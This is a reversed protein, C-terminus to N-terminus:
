GASLVRRCSPIRSKIKFKSSVNIAKFGTKMEDSEFKFGSYQEQANINWKSFHDAIYNMQERGSLGQGKVQGQKVLKPLKKLFKNLLEASTGEDALFGSESGPNTEIAVFSGDKLLATDFAFNTERLEPPLKDILSQTFNEIKTITEQSSVEFPLGKLELLWNHRDITAGRLVKGAIVEVRFERDIAVRPQLIANEPKELYQSIRWGFYNPHEQLKQYIADEDFGALEKVTKARLIEFDSNRYGEIEKVLDVKDTVISFNSNAEMVGKMVWGAPYLKHLGRALERVDKLNLKLDSLLKTEPISEPAYQRWFLAEVLKNNTIMRIVSGNILGPNFRGVISPGHFTRTHFVVSDGPIVLPMRGFSNSPITGVISERYYPKLESWTKPDEKERDDLFYRFIVPEGSKKSKEVAADIEVITKEKIGSIAAVFDNHGKLDHVRVALPLDLDPNTAGKMKLDALAANIRVIDVHLAEDQSLVIVKEFPTVSNSLQVYSLNVGNNILATRITAMDSGAIEASIKVITADQGDFWLDNETVLFDAARASQTLLGLATFVTVSLGLVSLFPLRTKM